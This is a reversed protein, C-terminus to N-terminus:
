NLYSLINIIHATDNSVKIMNMPGLINTNFLNRMDECSTELLTTKNLIGANNVLLNLGESGVLTSVKQTCEKISCLDSIDPPCQWLLSFATLSIM